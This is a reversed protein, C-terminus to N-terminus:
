WDGRTVRRHGAVDSLARPGAFGAAAMLDHVPRSQDYGHEVVLWGPRRLRDPAGSIVHRLCGLGDGRDTLALMPEHALAALHPDTAAVYPPNSVILDFPGPPAAAYWDGPRFDVEARFAASNRRAVALAAPSIDTAIVELDPRELKLTVAVCGSGTGLELVRAAHAARVCDLVTDVLTETDPRPILVDPTVAFSRGYFEQAEVLYAIPEGHARRQVLTAFADARASAVPVDPHAILHERAVGLAFALLTRAETRPLGSRRQLEDATM